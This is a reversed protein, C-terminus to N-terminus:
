ADAFHDELVAQVQEWVFEWRAAPHKTITLFQPLIFVGTVGEISLLRSGLPDGEAEDPHNYSAMGGEIFPGSSTTVKLSNPNPTPHTDFRPM